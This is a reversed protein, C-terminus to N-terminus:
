GARRRPPSPPWGPRSTRLWGAGRSASSCRCSSSRSRTRARLCGETEALGPAVANVTIGHPGLERALARTFAFVGGKSAVYHALNPTGALTVNSAINVIRGYGAERMPRQAHHCTLFVGDLNVAMVDDESSVDAQFTTGAQLDVGVV